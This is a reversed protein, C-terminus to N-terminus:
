IAGVSVSDLIPGFHSEVHGICGPTGYPADLIMKSGITCEDCVACRDQTLILM